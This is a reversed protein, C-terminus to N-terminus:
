GITSRMRANGACAVPHVSIKRQVHRSCGEVFRCRRLGVMWASCRAPSWARADSALYVVAAAMEEPEAIRGMPVKQLNKAFEPNELAKELLPTRTFTPAVANVTIQNAAWEAAM